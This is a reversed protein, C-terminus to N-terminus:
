AEIGEKAASLFLNCPEACPLGGHGGGVRAWRPTLICGACVERVYAAESEASFDNLVRFMGQQRATVAALQVPKFEGRQEAAWEAIVVPYATEVV